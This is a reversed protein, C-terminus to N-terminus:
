WSLTFGFQAGGLIPKAPDRSMRGPHLQEPIDHWRFINWQISYLSCLMEQFGHFEGDVLTGDTHKGGKSLSPLM